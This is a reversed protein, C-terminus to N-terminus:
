AVDLIKVVKKITVNIDTNLDKLLIEIENIKDQDKENRPGDIHIYLVEPKIINLLKITESIYQPRNFLILLIPVKFVVSM